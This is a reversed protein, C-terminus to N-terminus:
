GVVVVVEFNPVNGKKAARELQRKFLPNDLVEFIVKKFGTETYLKMCAELGGMMDPSVVNMNTCDFILTYDKGNISGYTAQYDKFFAQVDDDNWKGIITMRGERKSTNLSMEYRGNRKRM